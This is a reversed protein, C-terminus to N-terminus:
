NELIIIEVRRNRAMGQPTRNDAIPKDAGYGRVVVRDRPRVNKKILYEAVAAARDTSIQLRGSATGALATHGGILIDRGPYKMLIEAIRDLKAFESPRLVASDAAFQINELSIVIGESTIRVNADPIKKVEEAIDKAIDEKDMPPAEILEGESRARYEYIQGDSLEFIHRFFGESAAAQGLEADWYVIQDTAGQIRRPYVKGPVMEPELFARFSVSFAPYEKGKWTRAGLYNYMATFPIRYPKEIGFSERFDHVEIGGASWTEGPELDRGPFVPVDRVMPMYYQEDITMYGLSDQFFESQYDLSWQFPDPASNRGGVAVTKEASQFTATQRARGGSVATVEMTIRNIIEAKYALKRDVFIDQNITSVIRYKDGARYKYLFEFARLSPSVLVILLFISILFRRLAM